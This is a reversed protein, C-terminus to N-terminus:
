DVRQSPDDTVVCVIAERTPRRLVRERVLDPLCDLTGCGTGLGDVRVMVGTQEDDCRRELYISIGGEPHREIVATARGRTGVWGVLADSFRVPDFAAGPLSRLAEVEAGSSGDVFVVRAVEDSTAAATPQLVRPEVGVGFGRRRLEPLARRLGALLTEPPALRRGTALLHAARYVRDDWSALSTTRAAEAHLVAAARRRTRPRTPLCDDDLCESLGQVAAEFWEGERDALFGVVADGGASPDARLLEYVLADVSWEDSWEAPQTRRLPEVVSRAARVPEIELLVQAARAVLQPDPDDLSRQLLAVTPGTRAPADIRVYEPLSALVCALTSARSRPQLALLADVDDQLAAPAATVAIREALICTEVAAADAFDAFWTRREGRAEAVEWWAVIADRDAFRRGAIREIAEHAKEGVTLFRPIRGGDSFNAERTPTADGLRAVLWPLGRWRARTLEVFPSRLEPGIVGSGHDDALLAADAQLGTGDPRPDHGIRAAMDSAWKAASSRPALTVVRALRGIVYPRPAFSAFASAAEIAVRTALHDAFGRRADLTSGRELDAALQPQGEAMAWAALVLTRYAGGPPEGGCGLLTWAPTAGRLPASFEATADLRVEHITVDERSRGARAVRPVPDFAEDTRVPSAIRLWPPLRAPLSSEWDIELDPTLVLEDGLSSRVLIGEVCASARGPVQTVRVVWPRGVTEPFGASAYTSGVALVDADATPVDDPSSPSAVASCSTLVLLLGAGLRM